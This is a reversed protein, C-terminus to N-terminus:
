GGRPWAQMKQPQGDSRGRMPSEPSHRAMTWESNQIIIDDLYAEAYERHPRLIWEIMRQFHGCSRAGRVSPGYLPFTGRPHLIIDKRQRTRSTLDLTSIFHAPGLREIRKDIRPMTHADFNSMKNLKRFDNCFWTSGDPKPLLIIPSAWSSHSEEIIDLELM